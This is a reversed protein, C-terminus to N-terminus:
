NVRFKSIIENLTEAMKALDTASAATEEVGAATEQTISAINEVANLVESSQASQEESAAAIETVKNSSEKVVEMIEEFMNGANQAKINGSSVADVSAETNLQISSILDSIEKTAKGSREALKRVEDAVVAFGKGAEGARAAEIAANLALLNTQEAIDDIVEVIEGIQVSKNALDNIKESILQMGVLTEKIAAGGKVAVEVTAESSAAAEEANASVNQIAMTMERVLESAGSASEAQVQTGGAIEETSASIQEASAALSAANVSVEKMATNMGALMQNFSDTLVGIEDKSAYDSRVLLDGKEAKAMLQLIVKIPNAIMKSILLSFSVSLVIALVFIVVMIMTARLSDQSMRSQLREAENANFTALDDFIRNMENLEPYAVTYFYTYAQEKQDDEIMAMVTEREAGYTAIANELLPLREAEYPLLFTQKYSNIILHVEGVRNRIEDNLALIRQDNNTLMLEKLAAENARNHARAENLEKAPILRDQYMEEASSVMNDMYIYGVLAVTAILAMNCILLVM